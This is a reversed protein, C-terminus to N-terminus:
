DRYIRNLKGARIIFSGTLGNGLNDGATYDKIYKQGTLYPTKIIIEKNIWENDIYRSLMFKEERYEVM